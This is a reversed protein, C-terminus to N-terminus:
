ELRDPWVDRERVYRSGFADVDSQRYRLTPRAGVRYELARLYGDATWRQVARPSFGLQDAVERTTLLRERTTM